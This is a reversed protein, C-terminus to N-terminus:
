CATVILVTVNPTVIYKGHSNLTVISTVTYKEIYRQMCRHVFFTVKLLVPIKSFHRNPVTVSTPYIRYFYQIKQKSFFLGYKLCAKTLCEPSNNIFRSSNTHFAILYSIMGVCAITTILFLLIFALQLKNM